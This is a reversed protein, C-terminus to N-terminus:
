QIGLEKMFKETSNLKRHLSHYESVVENHLSKRASELDLFWTKDKGFIYETKGTSLLASFCNPNQHHLEGELVLIGDTRWKNTVFVKM